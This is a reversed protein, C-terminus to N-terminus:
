SLVEWPCVNKLDEVEDHNLIHGNQSDALAKQALLRIVLDDNTDVGKNGNTLVGHTSRRGNPGSSSHQSGNSSGKMQKLLGQRSNMEEPPSPLQKEEGPM